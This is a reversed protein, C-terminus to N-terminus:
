ICPEALGKDRSKTTSDQLADPPGRVKLSTLVVVIFLLNASYSRMYWAGLAGNLVRCAASGESGATGGAAETASAAM